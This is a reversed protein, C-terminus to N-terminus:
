CGILLVSNDGKKKSDARFLFKGKTRLAGTFFSFTETTKLIGFFFFPVRIFANVQKPLPQSSFSWFWRIMKKFHRRNFIMKFSMSVIQRTKFIWDFSVLDKSILKNTAQIAIHINRCLNHWCKFWICTFSM